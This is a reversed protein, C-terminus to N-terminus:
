RLLTAPQLRRLTRLATLSSGLAMAMTVGITVGLLWPPLLVQAGLYNAVPVLLFVVPLALFIGAMGITGGEAIVAYAMRRRPIGMAWLIAFQPLSAATAAYLTQSTVVAGVILGLTAAGGLAIGARTKTLWHMRSRLSLDDRTFVSVDRYGDLRAVVRPVDQAKRCRALVYTAQDHPLHLLQHATQLSCFLYAGAIGKFGRVLGVLRVRQGGAESTDGVKQVGLRELDDVDVVVTGPETLRARMEPTLDLAAGVAGQDLRCGIVLCNEHGGTPKTWPVFGQVFPESWEVEPQMALRAEYELPIPKGLDWSLPRPSGMWIDASAHDIPLSVFAFMGLLLGGQVATLIASFAVAFVAPLFRAREHWLTCMAFALTM